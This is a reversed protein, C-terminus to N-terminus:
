RSAAGENKEINIIHQDSTIIRIVNGEDLCSETRLEVHRIQTRKAEKKPNLDGGCRIAIVVSLAFVNLVDKITNTKSIVTRHVSGHIKVKTKTGGINRNRIESAITMKNAIKAVKAYSTRVDGINNV